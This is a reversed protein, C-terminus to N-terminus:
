SNLRSYRGCYRQRYQSICSGLQRRVLDLELMFAIVDAMQIVQFEAHIDAQEFGRDEDLEDETNQTTNPESTSLRIKMFRM